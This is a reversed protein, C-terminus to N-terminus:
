DEELQNTMRYNYLQKLQQPSYDKLEDLMEFTRNFRERKTDEAYM